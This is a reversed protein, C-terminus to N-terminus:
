ALLQAAAEGAKLGAAAAKAFAIGHLANGALFLGPIGALEREVIRALELHGLEYQPIAREWRHVHKFLPTTSIGFLRQVESEVIALLGEEDEGAVAPDVAGGLMARLLLTGDASRGSFIFSDWLFGLSRYGEGRPILVGFGRPLQSVAQEGYGLAVVAVPPYTIEGLSAAAVPAVSALLGASVWAECALIVADAEIQEGEVSLRFGGEERSHLAEVGARKRVEYPGHALAEPLTAMGAAFSTLEGGPGAPGGGGRKRRLAMMGRALSGHRQELEVLRPFAAEVSLRKADGAFVGLVMPSVLRDAAQRGLRRRAFHWVSEAESDKSAPIFPEALIRLLGGPGLIGARAFRLPHAAVQRLTGGRVVFRKAAAADAAITSTELGASRVLRELSPDPALYGNVGCEVVWGDRSVTRAKGGVRGEKELVQIDLAGPGAADAAARAAALGSIGGGVVVLKKM